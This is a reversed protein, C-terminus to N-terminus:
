ALTGRTPPLGPERRGRLAGVQDKMPLPDWAHPTAVQPVWIRPPQSKGRMREGGRAAEWKM